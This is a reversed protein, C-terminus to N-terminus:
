LTVVGIEGNDARISFDGSLSRKIKDIKLNFDLLESVGDTQIIPTKFVAAIREVSVGKQFVEQFFPIGVTKDMFCEGLFTTLTVRLRQILADIGDIVVFDNNEIVRDFNDDLKFTRM